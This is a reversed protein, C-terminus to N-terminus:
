EVTDDSGETGDAFLALIDAETAYTVNAGGGAAVKADVSKDMESKFTGLNELTVVKGTNEMEKVEERNGM